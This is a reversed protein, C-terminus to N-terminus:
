LLPPYAWGSTREAACREVETRRSLCARSQPFLPDKVACKGRDRFSAAVRARKDSIGMGVHARGRLREVETRRALRAKSAASEEAKFSAAVRARKDSIGMGVRAM